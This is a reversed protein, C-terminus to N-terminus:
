SHFFSTKGNTTITEAIHTNTGSKISIIEVDPKVWNKKTTQPATEILLQQKEM